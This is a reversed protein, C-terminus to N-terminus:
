DIGLDNGLDKEPTVEEIEVCAKDAIINNIIMEMEKRNTGQEQILTGYNLSLVRLTYEKILPPQFVTRVPDLLNSIFVTLV